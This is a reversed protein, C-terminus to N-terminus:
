AGGAQLAAATLTADSDSSTGTTVGGADIYTEAGVHEIQVAEFFVRGDPLTTKSTLVGQTIPDPNGSSRLLETIVRGYADALTPLGLVHAITPAVDLAGTPAIDRVGQAFSPGNAYFITQMERRSMGGTAALATTDAITSGAFQQPNSVLPAHDNAHSVFGFVIAPSRPGAIMVDALSLAGPYKGLSPAVFIPGIWPQQQLWTVLAATLTQRASRVNGGDIATLAPTTPLYIMDVSGQPIVLATTAATVAGSTVGQPGLAALAPTSLQAARLRQAVDVSQAPGAIPAAGGALASANPPLVALLGNDSTVIVNVNDLQADNALTDLLVGLNMDATQIAVLQQPSGVGFLMGAQAIDPIDIVSLFTKNASLLQPLVVQTYARTLYTSQQDAATGPTVGATALQLNLVFPYTYSQDIIYTNGPNKALTGIAPLLGAGGTGEYSIGMGAQIAEAALTPVQVLGGPLANQLKIQTAPDGLNWTQGSDSSSTKGSGSGPPTTAVATPTTATTTPATVTAAAPTTPAATITPTAAATITPTAAAPTTATATAAGAANAPTPLVWYPLASTIGTGTTRSATSPLIGSGDGPATLLVDGPLAGTALTADQVTSISPYVAHHALAVAGTDGLAQLRPTLNSAVMDPRMGDWVIMITSATQQQPAPTQVFLFTLSISLAIIVLLLTIFQNFLARTASSNTPPPTM